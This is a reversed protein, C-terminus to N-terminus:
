SKIRRRILMHNCLDRLGEGGRRTQLLVQDGKIEEEIRIGVGRWCECRFPVEGLDVCLTNTREPTHILPTIGFRDLKKGSRARPTTEHILLPHSSILVCHQIDKRRCPIRRQDVGKDLAQSHDPIGRFPSLVGHTRQRALFPPKPLGPPIDSIQLELILHPHLSLVLLHLNIVLLLPRLSLFLHYL